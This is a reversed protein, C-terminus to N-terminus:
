SFSLVREPIWVTITDDPDETAFPEIPLTVEERIWRLDLPATCTVASIAIPHEFEMAIEETLYYDVRGTRKEGRVVISKRRLLRRESVVRGGYVRIELREDPLREVAWSPPTPYRAGTRFTIGSWLRRLLRRLTMMM